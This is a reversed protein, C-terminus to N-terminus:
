YILRVITPHASYFVPITGLRLRNVRIQTRSLLPFMVSSSDNRRFPFIFAVLFLCSLPHTIAECFTLVVMPPPTIAAEEMFWQFFFPFCWEVHPSSDASMSAYCDGIAFVIAAWTEVCIASAIFVVLMYLLITWLGLHPLKNGQM